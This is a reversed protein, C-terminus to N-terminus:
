RMRSVRRAFVAVRDGALRDPSSELTRQFDLPIHRHSGGPRRHVRRADLRTIEVVKGDAPAVLVSPIPRSDAAVSRPLFLRGPVAARGARHGCVLIAHLGAPDDAGLAALGDTAVRGPGMPCVATRRALPVPRRGAGLLLLLPQPLIEPRPPRPNRAAGRRHGRQAPRGHPPRLGASFADAVLAAMTGLGTRHSLM